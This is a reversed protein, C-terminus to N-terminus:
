VSKGRIGIRRQFGLINDRGWENWNRREKCVPNKRTEVSRDVMPKTSPRVQKCLKIDPSTEESLWQNWKPKPESWCVLSPWSHDIHQMNPQQKTKSVHDTWPSWSSQQPAAAGLLLVIAHPLTAQRPFWGLSAVSDYAWLNGVRSAWNSFLRALEEFSLPERWQNPLEM